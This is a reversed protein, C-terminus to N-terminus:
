ESVRCRSIQTSTRQGKSVKKRWNFDVGKRYPETRYQYEEPIDWTDPACLPWTSKKLGKDREEPQANQQPRAAVSTCYLESQSMGVVIKMEFLTFLESPHILVAQHM